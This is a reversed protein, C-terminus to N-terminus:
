TIGAGDDPALDKLREKAKASTTELLCAIARMDEPRISIILGSEEKRELQILGLYRGLLDRAAPPLGALRRLDLTVRPDPSRDDARREDEDVPAAAHNSPEHPIDPADPLLQDVSVEYLEALRQLRAVSIMRHGREYAGLVSIRFEEGSMRAVTRLSLHRQQRVSRLRQGLQEAFM